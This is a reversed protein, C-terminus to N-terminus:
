KAALQNEFTSQQATWKSEIDSSPFFLPEQFGANVMEKFKSDSAAKEVAAEIKKITQESTGKPASVALYGNIDIDIGLSKFTPVDPLFPDKSGGFIGIARFDGNKVGPVVTTGGGVIADVKNGLLATTKNSGSDFPVINFTVGASKAAAQVGLQEDDGAVGVTIKGPTAKAAELLDKLSTHPSKASVAFYNTTRAMGGIPVFSEKTYAAGRDKVLYTPITSPLNTFGITYGDAPANALATLGIQGGAGPTNIVEVNTGLGEALLPAFARATIDTTGGAAFPVILKVTSGSKPYDVDTAPATEPACATLALAATAMVALILKKM